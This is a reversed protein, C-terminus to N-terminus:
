KRWLLFTPKLPIWVETLESLRINATFNSDLKV